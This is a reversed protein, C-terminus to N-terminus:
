LTRVLALIKYILKWWVLSWLLSISYKKILNLSPQTFHWLHQQATGGCVSSWNCLREVRYLWVWIHVKIYNSSMRGMQTCISVCIAPKLGESKIQPLWSIHLCLRPSLLLLTQSHQHTCGVTARKVAAFPFFHTWDMLPLFRCHRWCLCPLAPLPRGLRESVYSHPSNM